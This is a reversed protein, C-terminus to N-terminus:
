NPEFKGKFVLEEDLIQRLRMLSFRDSFINKFGINMIGFVFNECKDSNVCM